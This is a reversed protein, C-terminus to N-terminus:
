DDAAPSFGRGADNVIVFPLAEARDISQKGYPLPKKVAM